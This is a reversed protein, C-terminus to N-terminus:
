FYLIMERKNCIILFYIVKTESLISLDGKIREEKDARKQVRDSTEM